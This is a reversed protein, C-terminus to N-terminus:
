CADFYHQPIKNWAEIILSTLKEKLTDNSGKWQLIEPHDNILQDKLFRWLHEIPNLDPSYPPWEMVHVGHIEFWQEAMQSIHIPANDQMFIMGPEYYDLLGENLTACYSNASYGGRPSKDDRVMVVLRSRGKQGSFCAWIMVSAQKGKPQPDIMEKDWM